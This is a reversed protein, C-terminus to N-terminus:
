RALDVVVSQLGEVVRAMADFSISQPLDSSRHYNPNRFAVTDTIELAPVGIKWFSWHDSWGVGPM